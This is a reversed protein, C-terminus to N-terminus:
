KRLNALTERMKHMAINYGKPERSNYVLFERARELDHECLGDCKCKINKPQEMEEVDISDLLQNLSITLFEKYQEKIGSPVFVRSFGDKEAGSYIDITQGAFKKDLGAIIKSINTM